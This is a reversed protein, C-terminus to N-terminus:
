SAIKQGDRDIGIYSNLWWRLWSISCVWCGLNNKWTGQQGIEVEKGCRLFNCMENKQSWSKKGKRLSKDLPIIFYVNKSRAEKMWCSTKSGWPKKHWCNIKKLEKKCIHEHLINTQLKVKNYRRQWTKPILTISGEYLSNPLTWEKKRKFFLKQLIPM